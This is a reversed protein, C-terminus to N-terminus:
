FLALREGLALLWVLGAVLIALAVAASGMDKIRGIRPDHAPTIFDALKEIATNLLEVVLVCVVIAILILPKWAESGILFALPVAAVLAILEQRFATESRTAALLGNWTNLTARLLRQLASM